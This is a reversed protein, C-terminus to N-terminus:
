AGADGAKADSKEADGMKADGMRAEAVKLTAETEGKESFLSWGINCGLRVDIGDVDRLCEVVKRFSRAREAAEDKSM